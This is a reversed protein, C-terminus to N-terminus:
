YLGKKELFEKLAKRQRYLTVRVYNISMNRIEAIESENMIYWYRLVFVNRKEEDMSDLFEKIAESIETKDSFAEVDATMDVCEELENLVDSVVNSHRKQRNKKEYMHLAKNRAIKGIFAKLFKPINPPISAWLSLYTDNICEEVEGDDRLISYTVMKCFSGYKKATEEIAKESREVYLKVIDGDQM